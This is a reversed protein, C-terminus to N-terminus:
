SPKTKEKTHLRWRQQYQDSFRFSPANPLDLLEYEHDGDAQEFTAVDGRAPEVPGDGFDYEETRILFDQSRITVICGDAGLTEFASSGLGCPVDVITANGRRITVTNGGAREAAKAAARVAAAISM